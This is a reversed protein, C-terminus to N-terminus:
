RAVEVDIDEKTDFQAEVELAKFHKPLYLDIGEFSTSVSPSPKM